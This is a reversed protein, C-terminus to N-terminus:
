LVTTIAAEKRLAPSILSSAPHTLSPIFLCVSAHPFLLLPHWCFSLVPPLQTPFPRLPTPSSATVLRESAWGAQGESEQGARAEEERKIGTPTVVDGNGRGQELLQLLACLRQGVLEPWGHHTADAATEAEEQPKSHSRNNKLLSEKPAAALDTAQRAQAELGGGSIAKAAAYRQETCPPHSSSCMRISKKALSFNSSSCPDSSHTMHQATSHQATQKLYFKLRSNTTAAMCHLTIGKCATTGATGTGSELSMSGNPAAAAARHDAPTAQQQQQQWLRHSERLRKSHQSATSAPHSHVFQLFSNVVKGTPGLANPISGNCQRKQRHRM